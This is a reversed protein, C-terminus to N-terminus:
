HGTVEKLDAQAFELFIGMGRVLIVGGDTRKYNIAGVAVEEEAQEETQKIGVARGERDIREQVQPMAGCAECRFSRATTIKHEHTSTRREPTPGSLCAVSRSGRRCFTRRRNAPSRAESKQKM